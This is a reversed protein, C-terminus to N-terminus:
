WARTWPMPWSTTRTSHSWAPTIHVAGLVGIGIGKGIGIGIGIYVGPMDSMDSMGSMHSM